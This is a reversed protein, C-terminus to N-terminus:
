SEAEKPEPVFEGSLYSVFRSNLLGALAASDRCRTPAKM